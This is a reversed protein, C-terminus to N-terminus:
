ISINKWDNFENLTKRQATQLLSATNMPLFSKVINLGFILLKLKRCSSRLTHLVVRM